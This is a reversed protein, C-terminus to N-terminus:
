VGGPTTTRPLSLDYVDTMADSKHGSSERKDARTGKTDTIGKRKADHMGFRQEPTIVGKEICHKMLTQWITRLARRTAAKGHVNALVLREHAQM